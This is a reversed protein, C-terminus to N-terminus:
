GQTLGKLIPERYEMDKENLELKNEKLDLNLYIEAYESEQGNDFFLKYKKSTSTSELVFETLVVENKMKNANSGTYLESLAKVFRDSEEGIRMLHVGNKTFGNGKATNIVVKFGVTEDNYKGKVVYAHTSDHKDQSIIQFTLDIFDQKDKNLTIQQNVLVAEDSLTLKKSDSNKYISIFYFSIILVVITAAIIVHKYM